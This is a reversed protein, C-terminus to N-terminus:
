HFRFPASNDEYQHYFMLVTTDRVGYITKTYLSVSIEKPYDEKVKYKKDIIVRFRLYNNQVTDIKLQTGLDKWEEKKLYITNRTGVILKYDSDDTRYKENMAELKEGNVMLDFDVFILENATQYSSSYVLHASIKHDKNTFSIHSFGSTDSTLAYLDQDWTDSNYTRIVTKGCSFFIIFLGILPWTKKHM